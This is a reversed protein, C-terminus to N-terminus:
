LSFKWLLIAGSDHVLTINSRGIMWHSRLPYNLLHYWATHSYCCGYPFKTPIPNYLSYGDKLAIM